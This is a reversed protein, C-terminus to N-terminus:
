RLKQGVMAREGWSPTKNTNETTTRTICPWICSNYRNTTKKQPLINVHDLSNELGQPVEDHQHSPFQEQKNEEEKEEKMDLKEKLMMIKQELRQFEEQNKENRMENRELQNLFKKSKHHVDTLFSIDNINQQKEPIMNPYEHAYRSKKKKKQGYLYQQRHYRGENEQENQQNQTRDQMEQQLFLYKQDDNEHQNQINQLLTDKQVNKDTMPQATPLEKSILLFSMSVFLMSM